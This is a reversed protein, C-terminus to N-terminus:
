LQTFQKEIGGQSLFTLFKCIVYFFFYFFFENNYHNNTSGLNTKVEESKNDSAVNATTMMDTVDNQNSHSNRFHFVVPVSTEGNQLPTMTATVGNEAYSSGEMRGISVGEANDNGNINNNNNNNNSNNNDNSNNNSNNNSNGNINGNNNNEKNQQETSNIKEDMPFFMNEYFEINKPHKGPVYTIGYTNQYFRAVAEYGDSIPKKDDLKKIPLGSKTMQQTRSSIIQTSPVHLPKSPQTPLAPNQATAARRVNTRQQTLLASTSEQSGHLHKQSKSNTLRSNFPM